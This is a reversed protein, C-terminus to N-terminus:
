TRMWGVDHKQVWGGFHELCVLQKWRTPADFTGLRIWVVSKSPCNAYECWPMIHSTPIETENFVVLYGYDVGHILAM